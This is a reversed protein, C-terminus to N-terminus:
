VNAYGEDKNVAGYVIGILAFHLNGFFQVYLVVNDTLMILMYPIFATAAGYALMQHPGSSRAAIMILFLTQAIMTFLYLGTLPIGIDYFLKLWDNHPAYTFSGSSLLIIRHSNWGNGLWPEKKVGDWLIEWIYSRGHTKLNPNGWRVDSLEGSGEYFMKQQVRDSNFIVVTCVVMAVCLLIRKGLAIPAFTLPLCAIIAVIPGRTLSIFMSALMSLYYYLHITSGCGYFAAYCAGLLLLGIMEAALFAQAPIAGVLIMPLRILLLIWSIWALRTIWRVFNELQWEDPRYTSAACGVVVPSLTQILSQMANPNNRGLFWFIILFGIWPFWLGIPFTIKKINAFCILSALSVPIVWAWGTVNFAFIQKSGFLWPIMAMAIILFMFRNMSRYDQSELLVEPFEGRTMNDSTINKIENDPTNM